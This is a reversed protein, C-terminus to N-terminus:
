QELAKRMAEAVSAGVDRAIAEAQAKAIPAMLPRPPVDATGLEHVAMVPDSSVVKPADPDETVVEFSERLRGTAYLEDETSVRGVQGLHQKRTLTSEALAQWTGEPGGDQGAQDHCGQRISEAARQLAARRADIAAEVARGLREAAQAPTM